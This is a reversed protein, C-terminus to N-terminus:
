DIMNYEWQGGQDITTLGYKKCVFSITENTAKSYYKILNMSIFKIFSCFSLAHKLFNM